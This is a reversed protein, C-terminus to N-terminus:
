KDSSLDRSHPVFHARSLNLALRRLSAYKSSCNLPTIGPFVEGTLKRSTCVPVRRGRRLAVLYTLTEGAHLGRDAM